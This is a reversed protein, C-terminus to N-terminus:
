VLDKNLYVYISGRYLIDVLYIYLKKRCFSHSWRVTHFNMEEVAFIKAYM